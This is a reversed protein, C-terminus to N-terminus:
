GSPARESPVFEVPDGHSVSEDRDRAVQAVRADRGTLSLVHVM